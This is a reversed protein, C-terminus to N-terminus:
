LEQAQTRAAIQTLDFSSRALVSSSMVKTIQKPLVEIPSPRKKIKRRGAFDLEEDKDNDNFAETGDTIVSDVGDSASDSQDHKDDESDPQWNEGYKSTALSTRKPADSSQVPTYDINRLEQNADLHQNKEMDVVTGTETASAMGINRPLQKTVPHQEEETDVIDSANKTSLM